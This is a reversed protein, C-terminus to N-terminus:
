VTSPDKVAIMREEDKFAVGLNKLEKLIPLYVNERVPIHYVGHIHYDGLMLHKVFIALPLGVLRSMATDVSNKGKMMLTHSSKYEKGELEYEFVHQMVIMDKDEPELSWKQKLLQELIQAPTATRLTIPKDEFLGIWELKYMISSEVDVGLLSAVKEKVSRGPVDELFAEVLEKYTLHKSDLIPFSDDTLGLEILADWAECFGLHRLTGRQITPIDTLGYKRRYVLSDRNAYMEFKGIGNVDVIEHRKFLHHYPIYKLKSNELYQATGQGARVVNAPNWTFKYHWPNNDSEPAILGGTYSKFSRISAGKKKLEDIRFMASMHDLGPDLGLEGMFVIQKKSAKEALDVLDKSVYSATLMHRGIKLCERAIRKHYRVPLLSIVVDHSRILEQRKDINHINFAIATGCPHGNIKSEALEQDSDVVTLEWDYKKAEKLLYDILASASRGAGFLLIRKMLATRNLLVNFPLFIRIKITQHLIHIVFKALLNLSSM